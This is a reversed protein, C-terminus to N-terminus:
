LGAFSFIQYGYKQFVDTKATVVKVDRSFRFYFDLWWNPKRLEGLTM